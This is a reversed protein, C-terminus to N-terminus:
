GSHLLMANKKKKQNLCIEFLVCVCILKKGSTDHENSSFPSMHSGDIVSSGTVMSIFIVM